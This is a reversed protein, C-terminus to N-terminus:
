HGRRGHSSRYHIPNVTCGLGARRRASGQRFRRMTQVPYMPVHRVVAPKEPVGRGDGRRPEHAM